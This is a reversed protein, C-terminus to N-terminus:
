FLFQARGQTNVSCVSGVVWSPSKCSCKSVELYGLGPTTGNCRQVLLPPLKRINVRLNSDSGSEASLRNSNNELIISLTIVNRYSLHPFITKKPLNSEMLGLFVM